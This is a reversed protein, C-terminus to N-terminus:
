QGQQQRKKARRAANKQASRSMDAPNVGPILGPIVKKEREPAAAPVDMKKAEAVEGRLMEAFKQSAETREASGSAPQQKRLHPPVYAARVPPAAPPASSATLSSPAMLAATKQQDVVDFSAFSAAPAPRWVVQFMEEADHHFLKTGNYSWITFANAVRMRPSLVATLLTRSDPSWIHEVACDAVCQGILKLKQRDWFDINGPLNGFGGIAVLKSNPSWMIQNRPADGFDFIARCQADYLISRSPMHGATVIFEKGDPSWAVDHVPGDKALPLNCEFKGDAQMYHIGTEGFYSKGTTDVETHTVIVLSTGLSNWRLEVRQAKFFSKTARPNILDPFQYIRTSSPAGKREPKFVAINYKKDSPAFSFASCGEFKLHYKVVNTNASHGDYIQVENTVAFGCLEEDATWQLSPWFERVFQKQHLQSVLEGTKVRWVLLNGEGTPQHREWTLLFTGLPSWAIYQVGSRSLRVVLAGSNSDHIAIGSSGEVQALFAGNPSYQLLGTAESTFGDIQEISSSANWVQLGHKERVAIQLPGATTAM